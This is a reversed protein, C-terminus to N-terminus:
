REIILQETKQNTGDTVRILYVGNYVKLRKLDLGLNNQDATARVRFVLRGNLDFMMVEKTTKEFGQIYLETFDNAPNPALILKIPFREFDELDPKTSEFRGNEAILDRDRICM